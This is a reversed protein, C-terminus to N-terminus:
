FHLIVQVTDTYDGPTVSQGAPIRGQVIHRVPDGAHTAGSVLVADAGSGWVRGHASDQYLEYTLYEGFAAMRRVGAQANAGSDMEVRTPTGVGCRVTVTSQSDLPQSRHADLPDYSGFALPAATITCTQVVFASVHLASSNQGMGLAIGPATVFIAIGAVTAAWRCDNTLPNM